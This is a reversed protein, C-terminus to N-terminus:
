LQRKLEEPEFIEDYLFCDRLLDLNEESHEVEKSYIRAVDICDQVTFHGRTAFRVLAMDRITLFSVVAFRAHCLVNRDFVARMMYRFTFYVLLHEQEYERGQVEQKWRTHTERIESEPTNAYWERMRALCTRWEEDLIEMQDYGNQRAFFSERMDREPQGPRDIERQDRFSRKQDSNLRVEWKPILQPIENERDENLLHQIQSCFDIYAIIRNTLDLNRKQLLQIAYDRAQLLLGSLRAEERNEEEEEDSEWEEGDEEMWEQDPLERTEIKIPEERSFVLRGVEECSLAMCKERILTYPKEVDCFYEMTFRPYETCVESLAEEGLEICIDCLNEANLFPCRRGESLEFSTMCLGTQPDIDEQDAQVMHTRLRDGFSGEVQEYYTKTDEDIDIEWGICCSDKCAGAICQFNKYYDPTKLLM